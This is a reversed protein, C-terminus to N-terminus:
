DDAGGQQQGITETLLRIQEVNNSCKQVAKIMDTCVTYFHMAKTM